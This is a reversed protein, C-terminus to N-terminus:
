VPVLARLVRGALVGALHRKTAADAHLDGQPDLDDTLAAQAAAIADGDLKQGTLADGAARALVPRDEIAFYVLRATNCVTDGKIMAALGVLAYDGHRRALEQFGWRWGALPKPYEAALLIEGPQLATEFLGRFFDAANVRRQGNPGAIELVAGLAVACAPMEAAPDALALSGGLTGRNRIAAHAVHPMAAAILPLHRAVIPSREVEAHRTMAGIRVSTDTETIGSLGPVHNLDILLEPSSLRLNLTAMLSQGGALLRAEDGYTALLGFVEDLSVARAYAFDPAKM